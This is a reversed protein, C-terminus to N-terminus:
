QLLFCQQPVLELYTGCNIDKACMFVLWTPYFASTHLGCSPRSKSVNITGYNLGLDHLNEM